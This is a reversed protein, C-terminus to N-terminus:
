PNCWDCCGPDAPNGEGYDQQHRYNCKLCAFVESRTERTPAGCAACPLGPIRRVLGFGPMGCAPCRSHIKDLLDEAARQIMAMRTPNTHARLDTELFIRGTKSQGCAWAYADKLAAWDMIGKRVRPDNEGDPRIALGQEPFGAKEAFAELAPWDSVFQHLHLAKGQALGVLELGTEDDILILYEVNWPALGLFPDAGFGGESALGLPLGSLAMGIRAKKRAAEIQSGARPIDRTFTGLRDTDFGTVLALRCGLASELVPALAREKGHRTLLAIDRGALYGEPKALTM